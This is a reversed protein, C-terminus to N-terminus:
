RTLCFSATDEFGLRGYFRAHRRPDRMLFIKRGSLSHCLSQVCYSGLGRRRYDTDAAVGGIVASYATQSVTVASAAPKGGHLLAHIRATNHRLKHSIDPLFDEYPPVAFDSSECRKWLQWLAPLSPECTLTFDKPPPCLTPVPKTLTMVTVPEASRESLLAQRSLLSHFGTMRLFSRWEDTDSEDTLFVTMDHYYRVAAGTIAGKETIQLHFVAFDYRIGYSELLCGIRCACVDDTGAASLFKELSPLLSEDTYRIM